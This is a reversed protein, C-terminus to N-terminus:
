ELLKEAVQEASVATPEITLKEAAGMAAYVADLPKLEEPSSKETGAITLRAPAALAGLGGIGGYKLAGPLFMPDTTATVHDFSFGGLDVVACDVADGAAARALLVWPGAGGTGALQVTRTNENHALGAAATLIDRVRNALLPRNYCFTYGAYKEDVPTTEPLKSDALFEGTLFVDASFVSKGADLLKRVAATPKGDGDFLHSNGKGDIWLVATGDYAKPLLGVWPVQEGAGRRGTTGKVIITNADLDEFGTADPQIESAQPLGADLMVRAAAGVIRKYEAAGGAEGPQLAEFQQKAVETLHRRLDEASGADSPRPHEADFVSLEAPPVPWFDQEEIPTELGLALHENFWEYMMTRAVRNYNHGFQPFAQAHVRDAEGYLAYVQKLEPLGKTEIDITWDHAGSMALPKPAFLAAIAVNNIGQRLYPANECICGGQMDASVMVAPFAAVPRPDVACLMFTQTGGGSSGTVGIRSGDVDPLSTLFDLACISNFTQLGMFSQLWLDAQADTFGATHGMQRSDAMGVMDYHFVVCGMRALQVMRAQLPYRAGSLHKEAGQDIQSRAEEPGADHFRGNAWHGHPCLVGPM